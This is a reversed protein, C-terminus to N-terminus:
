GVGSIVLLSKQFFTTEKEIVCMTPNKKDQKQSNIRSLMRIKDYQINFGFYLCMKVEDSLKIENLVQVSPM